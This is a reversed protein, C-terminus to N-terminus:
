QASRAREMWAAMELAPPTAQAKLGAIVGTRNEDPQNQSLKSKGLLRTLTIEIGVVARLLHDVYEPPADALAWPEARPAEHRRTLETLHGRLWTADEIVRPIGYAHVVVYNWTPVVKGTAAKTPYWSPTIYSQPGHFIALVERGSQLDLWAPNARALHGQLVGFPTTEVDTLLLPLHNANPSDGSITVLTAFARERMLAHLAEPQTDAFLAPIHM